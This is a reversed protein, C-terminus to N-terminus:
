HPNLVTRSPLLIFINHKVRIILVVITLSYCLVKFPVFVQSITSISAAFMVM